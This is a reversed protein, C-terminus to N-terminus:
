VASPCALCDTVSTSGREDTFLSGPCSRCSSISTGGESDLYTNHPCKKCRLSGQEDSYTGLPCPTCDKKSWVNSSTGTPCPVCGDTLSAQMGPACAAAPGCTLDDIIALCYDPLAHGAECGGIKSQDVTSDTLSKYLQKTVYTLDNQSLHRDWVYISNVAWDSANNFGPQTDICQEAEYTVVDSCNYCTFTGTPSPCTSGTGVLSLDACSDTTVAPFVVPNYLSKSFTQGTSQGWCYLQNTDKRTACSVRYGCQIDTAQWSFVPTSPNYDNDVGTTFGTQGFGNEGWCYVLEDMGIICTHGDGLSVKKAQIDYTTPPMPNTTSGIPVNPHIQYMNFGDGKVAGWCVLKDDEMRIGCAGFEGMAAQKVYVDSEDVYKLFPSTSPEGQKGYGAITLDHLHRGWWKIRGLSTIVGATYLQAEFLTEPTEGADLNLAVTARVWYYFNNLDPASNGLLGKENYGWCKVMKAQLQQKDQEIVCYARDLAAIDQINYDGSDIKGLKGTYGGTSKLHATASGTDATMATGSDLLVVVSLRYNAHSSFKIKLIRAGANIEAQVDAPMTAYTSAPQQRTYSYQRDDSDLWNYSYGDDGYGWCYIRRGHVVACISRYSYPRTGLGVNNVTLCPDAKQVFCTTRTRDVTTCQINSGDLNMNTPEGIRLPVDGKGVVRFPIGRVTDTNYVTRELRSVQVGNNALVSVSLQRNQGCTVLWNTDPADVNSRPYTKLDTDGYAATALGYESHGHFWGIPSTDTKLTVYNADYARHVGLDGRVIRGRNLKVAPHTFHVDAEQNAVLGGAQYTYNTTVGPRAYLVENGTYRSVTCITFTKPVNVTGFAISADTGGKVFPLNVSAGFGPESGAQVTGVATLSHRGNGSSDLLRKNVADWNSALYKAYLPSPNPASAIKCKEAVALGGQCSGAYKLNVKYDTLSKQFYEQLVSVDDKSFQSDWIMITSVAWTVGSEGIPMELAPNGRGYQSAYLTDTDLGYKSYGGGSTLCKAQWTISQSWIIGWVAKSAADNMNPLQPWGIVANSRANIGTNENQLTRFLACVTLNVPFSGPPLYIKSAAALPRQVATQPLTAGNGIETVKEPTGVINTAHRNNGSTDYWIKAVPDYDQAHFRMVPPRSKLIQAFETPGCQKKIEGSMLDLYSGEGHFTINISSFYRYRTTGTSEISYYFLHNGLGYNHPGYRRTCGLRGCNNEILTWGSDTNAPNSEDYIDKMYQVKRGNKHDFIIRFRRLTHNTDTVLKIRDAPIRGGIETLSSVSYGKINLEGSTSHYDLIHPAMWHDTCCPARQPPWAVYSLPTLSNYANGRSFQQAMIATNVASYDELNTPVDFEWVIFHVSDDYQPVNWAPGRLFIDIPSGASRLIKKGFRQIMSCSRCLIDGNQFNQGSLSNITNKDQANFSDELNFSWTFPLTPLVAAKARPPIPGECFVTKRDWSGTEVNWYGFSDTYNPELWKMDWEPPFLEIQAHTEIHTTDNLTTWHDLSVTANAVQDFFEVIGDEHVVTGQDLVTTTWDIGDHYYHISGDDKVIKSLHQDLEGQNKPQFTIPYRYIRTEIPFPDRVSTEMRASSSCKFVAGGDEVNSISVIKVEDFGFALIGAGCRSQACDGSFPRISAGMFFNSRGYLALQIAVFGAAIAASASTGVFRTAKLKNTAPDPKLTMVPHTTDGGPASVATGLNSYMTKQGSNDSAGVSIVGECNGPWYESAAQHENGGSALLITGQAISLNVASQLFSPCAGRGSMPLLIISARHSSTQMSDIPLGSAYIISDAIDTAHGEGCSGMARVPMLASGYATGQFAGEKGNVLFSTKTGHFSREPDSLCPIDHVDGDRGDGDGSIDSSVFDYGPKVSAFAGAPLSSSIGTDLVAVIQEKLNADYQGEIQLSGKIESVMGLNIGYLGHHPWNRNEWAMFDGFDVNVSSQTAILDDEVLVAPHTFLVSLAAIEGAACATSDVILRRGYCHVFQACGPIEQRLECASVGREFTVVTRRAHAVALCASLIFWSLHKTSKM